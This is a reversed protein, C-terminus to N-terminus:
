SLSSSSSKKKGDYYEKLLRTSWYKEIGKHENNCPGCLVMDLVELYIDEWKMKDLVKNCKDCVEMDDFQLLKM